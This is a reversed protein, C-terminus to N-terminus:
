QKRSHIYKIVDGAIWRRSEQKKRRDTLSVPKPFDPHSVIERYTHQYSLGMLDAIDQTNLLISSEKTLGALHSKKAATELTELKQMIAKYTETTM